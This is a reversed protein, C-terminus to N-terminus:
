GGYSGTNQHCPICLAEANSLTDTGGAQVSVIHHAQWNGSTLPVNCRGAHGCSTRRCECRGGSREWLADIVSQPFAM